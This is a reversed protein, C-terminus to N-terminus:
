RKRLNNLTVPTKFLMSEGVADKSTLINQIFEKGDTSYNNLKVDGTVVQYYFQPSGNERFIYDGPNYNEETAGMSHLIEEKISM